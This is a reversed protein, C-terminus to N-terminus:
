PSAPQDCRALAADLAYGGLSDWEREFAELQADSLAARAGIGTRALPSDGQADHRLTRQVAESASVSLQCGAIKSVVEVPASLLERYSCLMPQQGARLLREYGQLVGRLLLAMGRAEFGFARGQSRVWDRRDRLLFVCRAAPLARLVDDIALGVVGRLKIVPESGLRARFTEVGARVLEPRDLEGAHPAAFVRRVAYNTFTDPESAAALGAARLMRVLLTSGCRGPSVILCPSMGRAAGLEDLRAFPVAAMRLAQARQWMYLFPADFPADGSGLLYILRQREFDACYALYHAWDAIERTSPVAHEADLVFDHVSAYRTARVPRHEVISALSLASAAPPDNAPQLEVNLYRALTALDATPVLANPESYV